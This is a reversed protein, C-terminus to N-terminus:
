FSRKFDELSIEKREAWYSEKEPELKLELFHKRFTKAILASFGIGLIYVVSLLVRSNFEGIKKGVKLFGNWFSKIIKIM